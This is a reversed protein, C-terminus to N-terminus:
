GLLLVGAFTVLIGVAKIRQIKEAFLVLGVVYLIIMRTNDIAIAYALNPALKYSVFNAANGVAALLIAGVMLGWHRREIKLAARGLISALLFLTGAVVLVVILGVEAGVGGDTAIRVLITMAAFLLSATLAWKLWDLKFEALRFGLVGAAALVGVTTLLVGILRTMDLAAQLVVLSFIYTIAIRLAIVAEIYGLNTQVKIARNLCYGGTWSTFGALVLPLLNATISPFDAPRLFILALVLAAGWWMYAMYVQIPYHRQFKQFALGQGSLLVASILAAVFWSV